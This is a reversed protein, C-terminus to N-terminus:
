PGAAGILVADAKAGLIKLAQGTVSADTRAFREDAVIEIGASKAFDKLAAIWPEGFADNYGIYAVSKVGRKRMDTFLPTAMTASDQATIFVWPFRDPPLEIPSMSIQPTKTEAAVISVATCAPVLTGGILLDANYETVFRRANKTAVTPDSEDNLIVYKIK